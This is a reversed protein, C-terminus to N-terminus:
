SLNKKWVCFNKTVNSAFKLTLIPKILRPQISQLTFCTNTCNRLLQINIVIKTAVRWNVVVKKVGHIKVADELTKLVEKLDHGQSLAEAQYIGHIKSTIEPIVFGDPKIIYCKEELLEFTKSKTIMWCIQVIRAGDFHDLNKHDYTKGGRRKPIGTTETDFFLYAM